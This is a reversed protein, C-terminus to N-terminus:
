IKVNKRIFIQAFFLADKPSPSELSFLSIFAFLKSSIKHILVLINHKYTWSWHPNKVM